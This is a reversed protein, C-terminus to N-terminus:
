PRYVDNGNTKAFYAEAAACFKEYGEKGGYIERLEDRRAEAWAVLRTHRPPPITLAHDLLERILTWRHHQGCAPCEMIADGPAIGQTELYVLFEDLNAILACPHPTGDAEGRWYQRTRIGLNWDERKM